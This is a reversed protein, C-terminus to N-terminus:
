LAPLHVSFKHLIERTNGALTGFLSGNGDMVIFGFKDDSELLEQLTWNKM